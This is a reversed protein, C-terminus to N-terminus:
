RDAYSFPNRESEYDGSRALKRRLRRLETENPSEACAWYIVAIIGVIPILTLLGAAGSYGMRNTIGCWILASVFMLVLMVVIM